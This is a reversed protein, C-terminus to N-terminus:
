HRNPRRLPYRQKTKEVGSVAELTLVPLQKTFARSVISCLMRKTASRDTLRIPGQDGLVKAYLSQTSRLRQERLLLLM